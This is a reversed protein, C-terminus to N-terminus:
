EETNETEKQYTVSMGDWECIVPDLPVANGLVDYCVLRVMYMGEPLEEATIKMDATYEVPDLMKFNLEQGNLDTLTGCIGVKTGYSIAIANRDPFGSHDNTVMVGLLDFAREEPEVDLRYQIMANMTQDEIVFPSAFLAYNEQDAQLNMVLPVDSFTPWKGDFTVTYVEDEGAKTVDLFPSQGFSQWLDMDEIYRLLQWNVSVINNEKLPTVLSLTKGDDSIANEAQVVYDTVRIDPKWEVANYVWDPAKWTHSLRDLFALYVPNEWVRAYHDLAFQSQNFSFFVSLGNSRVHNGGRVNYLVAKTVANQLRVATRVSVGHDAARDALDYLDAYDTYHYTERDYVSRCFYSFEEPKELLQSVELIFDDFALRVDDIQALDVLSMTLNVLSSNDNIDSYMQQTTSCITRGLMAGDCEPDQYLYKFYGAYNSGLGPLIEESAVFYRVYPSLTEATELTAMLCADMMLLELQIGSESLADALDFLQLSGDNHLQDFAIGRISAGGHDWLILAYKEAPYKEQTWVLFDKLTEKEGMSALELEDVKEFGKDTYSWRQLKTPDVDMGVEQAHWQMAGGTEIVVNVNDVPKAKAIGKLNETANRGDTELDSGCLYLMVTWEAMECDASRDSKEALAATSVLMMLVLIIGLCRKVM